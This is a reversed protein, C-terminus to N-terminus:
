FACIYLPFFFTSVEYRAKLVSFPNLVFGVAVRTTSGALLNGSNTLVPLVSSNRGHDRKRVAAFLPSVAMFGRAQNLGTLYLAIGPVNRCPNDKFLLVTLLSM